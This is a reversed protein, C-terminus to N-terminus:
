GRCFKSKSGNPRAFRHRAAATACVSEPLSAGGGLHAVRSQSFGMRKKGKRARSCTASKTHTKATCRAHVVWAAGPTRHAARPMRRHQVLGAAVGSWDGSCRRGRNTSRPHMQSGMVARRQRKQSSQCPESSRKACARFPSCAARHARYTHRAQCGRRGRVPRSLSPLRGSSRFPTKPRALPRSPERRGTYADSCPLIVSRHTRRVPRTLSAERALSKSAVGYVVPM